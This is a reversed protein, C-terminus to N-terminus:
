GVDFVQRIRWGSEAKQLLVTAFKTLESTKASVECLLFDGNKNLISVSVNEPQLGSVDGLQEIAGALALEEIIDTPDASREEMSPSTTDSQTPAPSALTSESNRVQEQAPTTLFIGAIMLLVFIGCGIWMKKPNRRIAAAGGLVRHFTALGFSELSEVGGVPTAVLEQKRRFEYIHKSLSETFQHEQLHIGNPQGEFKGTKVFHNIAEGYEPLWAWVLNGSADRGVDIATTTLHAQSHEVLRRVVTKGDVIARGMFVGPEALQRGLTYGICCERDPFCMTTM